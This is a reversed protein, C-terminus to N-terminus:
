VCGRSGRSSALRHTTKVLGWFQRHAEGGPAERRSGALDREARRRMIDTSRHWYHAARAWDNQTLVFMALNNFSSGVEPHEPGLAKERIDLVRKHHADAGYYRAQREYLLALNNFLIGVEPHESGLAKEMIGLSRRYLPEIEDFRDQERYLEALNNLTTGV